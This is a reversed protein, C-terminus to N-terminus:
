TLKFTIEESSAWGRVLCVEELVHQLNLFVCSDPADRLHSLLGQFLAYPMGVYRLYVAGVCSREMVSIWSQRSFTAPDELEAFILCAFLSFIQIKLCFIEWDMTSEIFNFFFFLVVCSRLGFLVGQYNLDMWGLTSGTQFTQEKLELLIECVMQRSPQDPNEQIGRIVPSSM